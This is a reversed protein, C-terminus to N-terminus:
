ITRSSAPSIKSEGKDYLKIYVNKQRDSSGMKEMEAKLEQEKRILDQYKETLYTHRMQNIAINRGGFIKKMRQNLTIASLKEGKGNFLLYDIEDPIISIWKKIILKLAQPIDLTQGGEHFKATKFKHFVFKNKDMYNDVNKDVNAGPHKMETWDIARRPPIHIGAMLSLIIYDQIEQLDMMNFHTKNKYLFEAREKIKNYIGEIENSSIQSKMQKESMELKDVDEEHIKILENMKKRYDPVDDGAIVVLASLYTKASAPPKTNLYEFVVKHKEFNKIDPEDTKGWVNKYISRLLNNYTTVSNDSLNPRKEKIEKKFNM